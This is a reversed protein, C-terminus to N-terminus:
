STRSVCNEIWKVSQGLTAKNNMKALFKTTAPLAAAVQALQESRLIGTFPEDHTDIRGDNSHVYVTSCHPAIQKLWTELDVKYPSSLMLSGKYQELQQQILPLAERDHEAFDPNLYNELELLPLAFVERQYSTLDRSHIGCGVLM